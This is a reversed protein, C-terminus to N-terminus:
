HPALTPGLVAVSTGLVATLLALAAAGAFARHAGRRLSERVERPALPEALHVLLGVWALALAGFALHEKREFMWGLPEMTLFITRKIRARYPGYLWIGLSVALTTLGM